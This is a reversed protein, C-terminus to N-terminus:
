QRVVKWDLPKNTGSFIILKRATETVSPQLDPLKPLERFTIIMYLLCMFYSYSVKLSM